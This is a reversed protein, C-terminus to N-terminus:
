NEMEEKITLQVSLISLWGISVLLIAENRVSHCNQKQESDNQIGFFPSHKISFDLVKGTTPKRLFEVEPWSNFIEKIKM